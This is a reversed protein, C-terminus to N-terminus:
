AYVPRSDVSITLAAPPEEGKIFAGQLNISAKDLMVGKPVPLFFSQVNDANQLVVPNTIGVDALSISREVWDNQSLAHLAESGPSAMAYLPIALPTALVVQTIVTLYQRSKKFNNM